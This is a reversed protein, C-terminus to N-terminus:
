SNRCRNQDENLICVHESKQTDGHHPVVGVDVIRRIEPAFDRAVRTVAPRSSPVHGNWPYPENQKISLSKFIMLNQEELEHRFPEDPRITRADIRDDLVLQGGHGVEEGSSANRAFPCWIVERILEETLLLSQM